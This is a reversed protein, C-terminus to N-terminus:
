YLYIVDLDQQHTPALWFNGFTLRLQKMLEVFTSIFQTTLFQISRQMCTFRRHPQCRNIPIQLYKYFLAQNTRSMQWCTFDKISWNISVNMMQSTNATSLRCAKFTTWNFCHLSGLFYRVLKFEQKMCKFIKSKALNARFRHTSSSIQLLDAM